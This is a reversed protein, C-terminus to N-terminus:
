VRIYDIATASKVRAAFTASTAAAVDANGIVKTNATDTGDVTLTTKHTDAAENVITFTFTSGITNQDTKALEAIVDKAKKLTVTTNAGPTTVFIGNILAAFSPTVSANDTTFQTFRTLSGFPPNQLQFKTAM